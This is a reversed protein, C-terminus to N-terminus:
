VLFFWIYAYTLIVSVLSIGSLAIGLRERGRLAFIVGLAICIMIIIMMLILTM